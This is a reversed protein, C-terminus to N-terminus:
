VNCTNKTDIPYNSPNRSKQIVFDNCTYMTATTSTYHKHVFLFKITYVM